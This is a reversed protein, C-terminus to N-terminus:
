GGHDQDHEQVSNEAVSSLTLVDLSRAFLELM